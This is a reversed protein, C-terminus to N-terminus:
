WTRSLVRRHADPDARLRAVGPPEAGIGLRPRGLGPLLVGPQVAAGPTSERWGSIRREFTFDGTPTVATGCSGNECYHLNNGTSIHTILAVQGDTYVYLVQREISIETRNPAGGPVLADAPGANQMAAWLEPTVVGDGEYGYTHQFAWVAQQTKTGYQGDLPGPDFHMAVLREQLALTRAGEVGPGLVDPEPEAPLEPTTTDRARDNHHPAATTTTAPATTTTM